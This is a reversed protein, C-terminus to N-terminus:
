IRAKLCFLSLEDGIDQFGYEVPASARRAIEILGISGGLSGEDPPQRLKERYHRKLDEASLAAIHDLRGRLAAVDARRVENACVVVFRGDEAGVAIMGASARPGAPVEGAAVKRASYRIINQAQEVFISFVRKAISADTEQQQMRLRLVEGLSMMVNESLDGGFSLLVGNRKSAEYFSIFDHGLM